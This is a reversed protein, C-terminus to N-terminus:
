RRFGFPVDRIEASTVEAFVAQREHIQTFFGLVAFLEHECPFALVNERVRVIELFFVDDTTKAHEGHLQPVIGFPFSALVEGYLDVGFRPLNRRAVDHVEVVAFPNRQNGTNVM